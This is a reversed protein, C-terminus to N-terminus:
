RKRTPAPSRLVLDLECIRALTEAVGDLAVRGVCRLGAKEACRALAEVREFGGAILITPRSDPEIQHMPEALSGEASERGDRGLDDRNELLTM